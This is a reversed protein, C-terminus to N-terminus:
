VSALGPRPPVSTSSSNRVWLDGKHSNLITVVKPSRSISNPFDRSIEPKTCVYKFNSACSFTIRIFSISVRSGSYFSSIASSVFSHISSPSLLPRSAPTRKPMWLKSYLIPMLRNPVGGSDIEFSISLISSVAFSSINHSRM